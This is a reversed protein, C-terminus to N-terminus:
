ETKGEKADGARPAPPLMDNREADYLAHAMELLRVPDPPSGKKGRPGAIEQCFEMVLREQEASIADFQPVWEPVQREVIVPTVSKKLARTLASREQETIQRMRVTEPVQRPLLERREALLGRLEFATIPMQTRGLMRAQLKVVLQQATETM